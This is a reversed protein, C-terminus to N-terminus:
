SLAALTTDISSGGRAVRAEMSESTLTASQPNVGAAGLVQPTVVAEAGVGIRKGKLQTLHDLTETGRYFLWFIQYNVRGLSLLGPAQQSNSSGGVV